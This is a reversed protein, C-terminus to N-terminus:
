AAEREAIKQARQEASQEKMEQRILLMKTATGKMRQVMYQAPNGTGARAQNARDIKLERITKSLEAYRARWETRAKIYTERDTFTLYDM